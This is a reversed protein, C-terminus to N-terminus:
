GRYGTGPSRREFEPCLYTEQVYETYRVRFIDAKSRVRRYAAKNDRYCEMWGFVGHGYPSYDSFACNICAKMSVGAPLAKQIELLEDEFWGSEGSGAYDHGAHHLMLHIEERELRGYEDPVGLIIRIHLVAENEGAGTVMTVSMDCEITCGCLEKHNLHFSILAAAETEEVPEFDDFSSGSFEVDRVRMRLMKGDNRLTTVEEGKDDSYRAPYIADM